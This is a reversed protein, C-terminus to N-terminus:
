LREGDANFAYTRAPDIRLKCRSGKEPFPESVPLRCIIRSAGATCHALTEHGLFEVLEVTAEFTLGNDEDDGRRISVDEPRVGIDVITEGDPAAGRLITRPLEIRIDDRTVAFELGDPTTRLSGRLFNMPPSGLFGAVFRNAPDTYVESPAGVQQLEGNHMIAIRDGMTMAETQDHTVYVATSGVTRQLKHIEARMEVRLRADLNSLPEDFLFVRPSRIIARGLAVRQRQGGSLEKPRRELLEELGLLEAVERVRATIQSKAVRQISLPFALNKSVTLHPYLAYNQFVMGIDRVKPHTDNMREGDFFLDGGTIEELGAIMRLTTSKGCGSPGLLVLFEGDSITLSIGRVAQYGNPYSKSLSRLEVNAM